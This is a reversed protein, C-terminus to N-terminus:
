PCTSLSICYFMNLLVLVVTIIIISNCQYIVILTGPTTADTVDDVLKAVDDVNKFVILQKPNDILPKLSKGDGDIAILVVNVDQDKMQKMYKELDTVDAKSSVFLILAKPVNKRAGNLRSYAVNLTTYIAETVNYGTGSNKMNKFKSRVVEQTQSQLFPFTIVASNAYQSGSFLTYDSHVKYNKIANIIFSIQKEFLDARSDDTGSIAM